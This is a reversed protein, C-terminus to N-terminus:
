INLLEWAASFRSRFTALAMLCYWAEDYEGSLYSDKDVGICSYPEGSPLMITMGDDDFKAADQTAHFLVLLVDGIRAVDRGGPNFQEVPVNPIEYYGWWYQGDDRVRVMPMASGPRFPENPPRVTKWWDCLLRMAPHRELGGPIGLVSTEFETDREFPIDEALLIARVLLEPPMEVPGNARHAENDLKFSTSQDVEDLQEDDFADITSTQDPTIGTADVIRSDGNEFVEIAYKSMSLIGM